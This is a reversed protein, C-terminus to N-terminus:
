ECLAKWYSEARNTGAAYVDLKKWHPKVRQNNSGRLILVLSGLSSMGSCGQIMIILKCIKEYSNKPFHIIIPITLKYLSWWFLHFLVQATRILKLADETFEYRGDSDLAAEVRSLGKVSEGTLSYLVSFNTM